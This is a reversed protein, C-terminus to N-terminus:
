DPKVVATVTRRVQDEGSARTATVTLRVLEYPAGSGEQFPGGMGDCEVEVTFGEVDFSAGDTDCATTAQEQVIAWELGALAAFWARAGQIGLAPIRHQVSTVTVIYAGLAALVVILFVAGVLSLGRQREPTGPQPTRRSM